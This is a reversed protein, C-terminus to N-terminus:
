CSWSKPRETKLSQHDPGETDCVSRAGRRGSPDWVTEIIFIMRESSPFSKRGESMNDCTNGAAYGM